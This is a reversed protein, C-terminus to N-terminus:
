ADPTVALESPEPFAAWAQRVAAEPMLLEAGFVNAERELDRDTDQSVDQRKEWPSAM